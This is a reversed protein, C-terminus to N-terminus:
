RFRPSREAIIAANLICWTVSCIDKTKKVTTRSELASCIRRLALCIDSRVQGIKGKQTLIPFPLIADHEATGERTKKLSAEDSGSMTM